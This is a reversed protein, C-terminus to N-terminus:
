NQPASRVTLYAGDPTSGAGITLSIPLDGDPLDDPLVINVQYLGASFPTGGVYRIGAASIETGNVTIRVNGVVPSPATPFEGPAGAPSTMGFSTGFITVIEGAHAPQFGDGLDAGALYTGTVADIAAVPNKGDPNARFFFFEPSNAQISVTEPNTAAEAPTGCGVIVRVPVSDAPAVEPVQFNVQSPYVAFVPARAQGVQVCIGAFVTPVKGDVLDAAEVKRATGAPAFNQGFITAIGGPSLSRKGPYLGAGVVGAPSIQATPVAVVANTTINFTLAPLGSTSASIVVAGAKDGLTVTASAVGNVNTIASSPSVTANGSTVAFLVSVGAVGNGAQDAAKASITLKAGPNGSQNNGGAISLTRVVIPVLKRVRDNVADTIYIDGGPSVSVYLPSMGIALAPGSERDVFRVGSGAITTMMGTIDVKRLLGNGFDAIYLNGSGDVAVSTPFSLQATTAPKGDGNFGPAGTGAVMTLLGSTASVKLVRHNADAIYLNGAADVAIGKPSVPAQTAPGGVGITGARGTGAVTSIMGSIADVKRVRYNGSDAIYLNGAADYAVAIPANLLAGAAFIGDGSYGAKPTTTAGVITAPLGAPNIRQVRHNAYDAFVVNGNPDLALGGPSSIRGEQSGANGTGAITSIRGDVASVKRIRAGATDSIVLDGGTTAVAAEPETLYAATAAGGDKVDTGAVTDITGNRIRRIRHNGTDGILLDNNATITLGLPFYFTAALASQGDGGFGLSGSGAFRTIIGSALDIVRVRDLNLLYLKGASPDVAITDPLFLTARIAPGGDGDDGYDGSGAITNILGDPSIKRIVSNFQDCIYINGTSDLAVANPGDLLAATAPGGDGSFGTSSGAITTITGAGAAIKRIRDNSFDAVYINGNSDLAIHYPDLGAATAPGNDGSARFSGNGAVTTIIGTAVTVKRIRNNGNDAIYLNGGRDVAVALPSDLLADEARGGDGSFGPIGNGAVTSILGNPAIRRIRQAQIDAIYINGAADVATSAPARLPATTAAFGDRVSDTGAVTVAMYSQALSIGSYVGLLIPLIIGKQRM